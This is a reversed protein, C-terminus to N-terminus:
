FRSRAVDDASVPELTNGWATRIYTLVAALEGNSLARQSPMWPTGTLVFSVQIAKDTRHPPVLSPARGPIGRGDAQHCAACARMFLTEGDPLPEGAESAKECAALALILLLLRVSGPDAVAM